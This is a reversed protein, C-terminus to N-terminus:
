DSTSPTRKEKRLAKLLESMDSPLDSFFDLEAGTVPQTFGLRHAHLAQRPFMKKLKNTGYLQDGIVPHAIFALHVRIQHTRGTELVAKVCAFDGLDELLSFNTIATRSNKATVAMKRRNYQDRGIPAQVQVQEDSWPGLCLAVYERKITRQEWQKKLGNLTPEDKAAVMLGSTDKDLRHVIGPRNVGGIGKFDSCHHLLGNVLTPLSYSSAPHTVLGAPKDIVILHSDEYVIDLPLAIPTLESSEPRPFDIAIVEGPSLQYSPKVVAGNVLAQGAKIMRQFATRSHLPLTQHLFSDLRSENADDPYIIEVKESLFLGAGSVLNKQITNYVRGGTM